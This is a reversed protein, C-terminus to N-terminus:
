EFELFLKGRLAQDVTVRVEHEIEKTKESEIMNIYPLQAANMSEDRNKWVEQYEQNAHMLESLFNSPISKYGEETEEESQETESDKKSKSKKSKKSEKSSM